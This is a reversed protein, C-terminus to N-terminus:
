TTSGKQNRKKWEKKIARQHLSQVYDWDDELNGSVFADKEKLEADSLQSYTKQYKNIALQEAVIIAAILLLATLIFYIM